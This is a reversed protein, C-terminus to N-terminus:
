RAGQKPYQESRPEEADRCERRLFIPERGGRDGGDGTHDSDSDDSREEYRNESDCKPGSFPM